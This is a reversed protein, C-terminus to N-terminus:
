IEICRKLKFNFKTISKQNCVKILDGIESIDKKDSENIFFYYEPERDSKYFYDEVVLRESVTFKKDNKAIYFYNIEGFTLPIDIGNPNIKIQPSSQRLYKSKSTDYIFGDTDCFQKNIIRKKNAWKLYNEKGNKDRDIQKYWNLLFPIIFIAGCGWIAIVLFIEM